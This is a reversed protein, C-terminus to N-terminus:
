PKVTEKALLAAADVRGAIVRLLAVSLPEHPPLEPMSPAPPPDVMPQRHLLMERVRPGPDTLLEYAERVRRFGDPDTDPPHAVALKRYARKIALADDEPSVGLVARAEAFPRLLSM